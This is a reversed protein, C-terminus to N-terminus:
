QSHEQVVGSPEPRTGIEGCAPALPPEMEHLRLITLFGTTKLTLAALSSRVARCALGGIGHGSPLGAAM